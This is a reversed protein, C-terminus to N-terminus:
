LYILTELSHVPSVKRVWVFLSTRLLGKKQSHHKKEGLHRDTCEKEAERVSM